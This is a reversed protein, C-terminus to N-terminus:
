ISNSLIVSHQHTRDLCSFVYFYSKRLNIVKGTRILMVSEVSLKLGVQKSTISLYSHCLAGMLDDWLDKDLLISAGNLYLLLVKAHSPHM